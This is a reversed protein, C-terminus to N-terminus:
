SKGKEKVEEEFSELYKKLTGWVYYNNLMGGGTQSMVIGKKERQCPEGRRVEPREGGGQL